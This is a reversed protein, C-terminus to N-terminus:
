AGGREEGQFAGRLDRNELRLVRLQEAQDRALYRLRHAEDRLEDGTLPEPRSLFPAAFGQPITSRLLRAQVEAVHGDPAWWLFGNQPDRFWEGTVPNFVGYADM